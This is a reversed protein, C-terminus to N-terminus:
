PFPIVLYTSKTAFFKLIHMLKEYYMNKMFKNFGGLLIGRRVEDVEEGWAM